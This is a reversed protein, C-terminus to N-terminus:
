CTQDCYGSLCCQLSCYGTKDEFKDNCDDCLDYGKSNWNDLNDTFEECGICWKDCKDTKKESKM